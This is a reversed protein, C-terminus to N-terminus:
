WDDSAKEFVAEKDEYTRGVLHLFHRPLDVEIKNPKWTNSNEMAWGDNGKAIAAYVCIIDSDVTFPKDTVYLGTNPDSLLHFSKGVSKQFGVLKAIDSKFDARGFPVNKIEIVAEIVQLRTILLDPKVVWKGTGSELELTPEVWLGYDVRGLRMKLHHYMEAQLQRESCLRGEHHVRAIEEKWALLIEDGLRENM